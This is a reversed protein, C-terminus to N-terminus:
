PLLSFPSTMSHSPAASSALAFRAIVAAVADPKTIVFYHGGGSVPLLIFWKATWAAWGGMRQPPITEDDTAGLAVIPCALSVMVVPCYQLSRLFVEMRGKQGRSREVLDPLKLVNVMAWELTGDEVALTEQANKADCAQQRPDSMAGVVLGSAVQGRDTQLVSGVEFAFGAGLSHGYLVFEHGSVVRAVEDVVAVVLSQADQTMLLPWPNVSFVRVRVKDRSCAEVVADALGTFDSDVGGMMTFCVVDVVIPHGDGGHGDCPSECLLTMISSRTQSPSQPLSVPPDGVLSMVPRGVNVLESIAASITSVSAGVGLLLSSEIIVGFRTQLVSRLVVVSLSDIGIEGLPQLTDIESAPVDITESVVELVDRMVDDVTNWTTEHSRAELAHVKTPLRSTTSVAASTPATMTPMASVTSPGRAVIVASRSGDPGVVCEVFGAATLARRWTAPDMAAGDPRLATDDFRWWGELLGFVVDLWVDRVVVELAVLVGGPALLALVHRLTAVMDRTAHLVNAAVVVDCAHREFGQECPDREIDLARYQVFPFQERPFRARAKAFFSASIDTFVYEVCVGAAEAAGVVRGLVAQTTGGTGAGVELIRLTRRPAQRQQRRQREDSDEGGKVLDAVAQGVLGNFFQASPTDSYLGGASAKGAEAPFLLELPNALHGSLVGEL